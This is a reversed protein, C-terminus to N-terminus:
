NPITLWVQWAAVSPGGGHGDGSSLVLGVFATFRATAQDAAYLQKQV